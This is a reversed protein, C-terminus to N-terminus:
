KEPAEVKPPDAICIGHYCYGGDCERDNHCVLQPSRSELKPTDAVCIGNYCYSGDCERDNHCILHLSRSEFESRPPDAVYIGRYCYCGDCDRDNHCALQLSRSELSSRPSDAVRIGNYYYGRDCEGDNHCILQPSRRSFRLKSPPDAVCISAMCYSDAGCDANKSCLGNGIAPVEVTVDHDIEPAYCIGNKCTGDTCDFNNRCLYKFLDPSDVICFRYFCFLGDGCDRQDSCEKGLGDRKTLHHPENALQDPWICKHQVCVPGDDNLICDRDNFCDIATLKTNPESIDTKETNGADEVVRPGCTPLQSMVLSIFFFLLVYLKM